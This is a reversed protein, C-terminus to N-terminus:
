LGKKQTSKGYDKIKGHRKAHCVGCLSILDEMAERFIRDYTLHHVQKAPKGCDRCVGKDRKLVAKRLEAWKPSRIYSSYLVSDYPM